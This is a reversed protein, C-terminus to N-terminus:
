VRMIYSLAHYSPMTSAKGTSAALAHTHGWSNGSAYLASEDNYQPHGGPTNGGACVPTQLDSYGTAKRVTHSHSAMQAVSLTTEGVTGSVSRLAAMHACETAESSQIRIKCQGNNTNDHQTFCTIRRKPLISDVYEVVEM